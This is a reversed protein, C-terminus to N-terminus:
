SVYSLYSRITLVWHNLTAMFGADGTEVMVSAQSGLRVGPPVQGAPDFAIRIPLRQSTNLWSSNPAQVLSGTPASQNPTSIGGGLGVVKGHFLQGPFMDLAILAPDGLRVNGLQNESFYGILGGRSVDILSVLPTGASAYSGRGIQLNSIYGDVPAVVKTWELNKQAADLAAVAARLQPNASGIPGLQQLAGALGAEAQLVGAEASALTAMTAELKARTAYGVALLKATRDNDQQAEILQAKRSTLVARASDVAAAAAGVSQQAAGYSARASELAIRYNTPDIVALLQGKTVRSNDTVPVSLIEGSVQPTVPVVLTEATTQYTIPALRDAAINYALLALLLGAVIYTWRRVPDPAAATDSASDAQATESM